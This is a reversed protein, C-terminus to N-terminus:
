AAGRIMVIPKTKSSVYLPHRPTGDTNLKLCHVDGFKALLKLLHQDRGNFKGHQGWACIVISCRMRLDVIYSDNMEGVPDAAKYLLTPDTSRLAFANCVHLGGYGWAKTFNICRRITPDNKDADATSPNLMCWLVRTLNFDWVRDLTYRFIDGPGGFIAGKVEGLEFLSKM